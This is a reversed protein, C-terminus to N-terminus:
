ANRSLRILAWICVSMIMWIGLFVLRDKPEWDHFRPTNWWTIFDLCLKLAGFTILIALAVEYIARFAKRM